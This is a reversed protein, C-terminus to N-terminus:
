VFIDQSELNIQISPLESPKIRKYVIPFKDLLDNNFEQLSKIGRLLYGNLEYSCLAYKVYDTSIFCQNIFDTIGKLDDDFSEKHFYLEPLGISLEEFDMGEEEIFSIIMERGGFLETKNEGIVLGLKSLFTIIRPKSLSTKEAILSINFYEAMKNLQVKPLYIILRTLMWDGVM